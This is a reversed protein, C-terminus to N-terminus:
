RISASLMQERYPFTDSYYSDFDASFSGKLLSKVTIKPFAALQRNESESRTPDTDAVSIVFLAFVPLFFAVIIAIYWKNEAKKM